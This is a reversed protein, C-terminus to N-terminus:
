LKIIKQYSIITKTKLEVFYIGSSLKTLDIENESNSVLLQGESIETGNMSCIRYTIDDALNSNIKIKDFAPVPFIHINTESEVVMENVGTFTEFLHISGPSFGSSGCLWVGQNSKTIGYCTNVCLPVSDLYLGTARDIKYIFPVDFAAAYLDTDIIKITLFVNPLLFSDVLAMTTADFKHLYTGTGVPVLYEAEWILSDDFAIGYNNPDAPSGVNNNPLPWQNVVIGTSANIKYLTGQQENVYWLNTGDFDLDGGYYFAAQPKPLTTVLAGTNGDSCYFVNDVAGGNWILNGAGAIGTEQPEQTDISFIPLCSLQSPTLLPGMNSYNANTIVSQSILQFPIIFLILLSFKSSTNKM